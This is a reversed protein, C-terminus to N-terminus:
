LLVIAALAGASLGLVTYTRGEERLAARTEGARRLLQTRVEEVGQRQEERDWRGLVGGLAALLERDAPPLPSNEESLAQGWVEGFPAEGLGEAARAFVPAPGPPGQQALVALLDGTDPQRFSLERGWLALAEGWEELAKARGTRERLAALALLLGALPLLVAGWVRM